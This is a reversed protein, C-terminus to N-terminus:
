PRLSTVKSVSKVGSIAAGTGSIAAAPVQLDELRSGSKSCLRPPTESDLFSLLYSRTRLIDQQDQLEIVWWDCRPLQSLTKLRIFIEWLCDPAVHGVGKMDTHYIHANLLRDCNPFLYRDYIQEGYGRGKVAHAHGLDITVGAGSEAVIRNFSDPDDTPPTTLNELSVAVGHRKGYRVLRSLNRVGKGLDIGAGTPNNQGIQVTVHRGGAEAVQEVTRELLDLSAEGREGALAPDGKFLRCNYRVEFGELRKMATLFRDRPQEPDISWDIARFGHKSAFEALPRVEQNFINCVAIQPQM